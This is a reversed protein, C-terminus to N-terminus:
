GISQRSIPSTAHPLGRIVNSVRRLQICPRAGILTLKEVDQVCADPNDVGCEIRLIHIRWMAARSSREADSM